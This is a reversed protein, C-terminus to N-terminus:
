LLKELAIKRFEFIEKIKKEIFLKNLFNGIFGFPIEYHLIDTMEVGGDVEKFHHQHHWMKYPGKRQEDVFFHPEHVHTIETVWHMPINFLPSVTYVIMQGAYTPKNQIDTHIIFNMEPPTIKSLNAPNSFFTWATKIDIPLNHKFQLNKVSMNILENMLLLFM